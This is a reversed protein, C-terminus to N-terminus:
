DDIDAQPLDVGVYLEALPITVGIEPMSLEAEGLTVTGTWHEGTHVLVTAGVRTQELM